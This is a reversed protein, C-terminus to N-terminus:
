VGVAVAVDVRLTVKVISAVLLETQAIEPPTTLKLATPVHLTSALWAPLALQFAAGWAWCDNATPLPECVM